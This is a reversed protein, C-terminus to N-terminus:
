PFTVADVGELPNLGNEAGSEDRGAVCPGLFSIDDMELMSAADVDNDGGNGVEVASKADEAKVSGGAM